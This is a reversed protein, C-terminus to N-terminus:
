PSTIVLNHNSGSVDSVVGERINEFNWSAVLGDESMREKTMAGIEVPTLVRDYIRVDAMDGNLFRSNGAWSGLNFKDLHVPNGTSLPIQMELVGNVYVKAIRESTDVTAVVNAWEGTSLSISTDSQGDNCLALEIQGDKLLQFHMSGTTWSDTNMLASYDESLSKPKVWLSVALKPFVGINKGEM